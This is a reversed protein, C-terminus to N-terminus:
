ILKVLLITSQNYYYFGSFPPSAAIQSTYKITTTAQDWTFSHIAVSGSSISGNVCAYIQDYDAGTYIVSNGGFAGNIDIIKSLYPISTGTAGSFIGSDFALNGDVNFVQLGYGTSSAGGVSTARLTLYNASTQTGNSTINFVTTSVPNLGWRTANPFSPPKVFIFEDSDTITVANGSAIQVPKLYCMPRASDIQVTNNGSNVLLGYAM